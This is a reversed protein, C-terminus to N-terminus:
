APKGRSCLELFDNLHSFGEKSLASNIHELEATLGNENLNGRIQEFRLYIMYTNLVDSECYERIANIEGRQYANWVQSGDMGQKGPLGLMLAIEHLPAVSRYQFGSLVDM